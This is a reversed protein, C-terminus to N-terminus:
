KARFRYITEQYYEQGPHLIVSPFKPQNVADPFHQTELCFGSHQGYVVGRKGTISGDLFNGSYFQVGPETTWVEMERGSSRDFVRAALKLTGAEGNLVFNHDYGGPNGKMGAIDAGIAKPHRFDLPTGQVPVIEGTPILTANVPTYRNANIYLIEGLVDPQGDLNFYSHHTLNVPTARDTKATYNLKLENQNTLTYTVSIDLNGPFGEDGNLSHYTFRVAAGDSEKVPDAQWVVHSLDHSGSHLNNPPDNIELSYQKGDLSFKGQAIRNAVRGVTAGFWPRNAIYGELTDFGLVIDALKGARDPMWLENLIAGYTIVKASASHSNTLTFSYVPTGDSLKGFLSKEVKAEKMSQGWAQAPALFPLAFACACLTNIFLRGYRAARM